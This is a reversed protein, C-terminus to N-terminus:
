FICIAAPCPAGATSPRKDSNASNRLATEANLAVKTPIALGEAAGGGGSPGVGTFTVAMVSVDVCDGAREANGATGPSNSDGIGEAKGAIKASNRPFDKM